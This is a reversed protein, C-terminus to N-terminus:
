ASYKGVGDQDSQYIIELEYQIAKVLENTTITLTKPLGTVTDRGKVEGNV